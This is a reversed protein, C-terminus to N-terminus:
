NPFPRCAMRKVVHFFSGPSLEPEEAVIDPCRTLLEVFLARLQFRALQNGLCHHIGGGGFSVHPNPHRSLDLEHPREIAQEDRNASSYFMILKDGATIPVGDLETDHAATRRFTMIPTAWRVIEEVATTVRGELDEALWARQEPHTTLARVGHALSQRTTDNGAITLLVFFSGIEHDTLREGDVEAQALATFLDDQPNERREAVIRASLEHMYVLAQLMTGLKQERDAGSVDDDGWSMLLTMQQSTKEREGEPVGMMDNFNHMPLLAGCEAVWDVRGDPASRAKEVLNDVVRRANGKIRDEIRRVQKPTFAASVLRRLKTHRPPDMAIISQAAELMEVPMNDGVIGPGSLFDANRKTVETLHRHTTIAWYGHDDEVPLLNDELPPQWSIPSGARLRAFTREREDATTSWFEKGSIDIECYPRDPNGSAQQTLGTGQGSFKETDTM